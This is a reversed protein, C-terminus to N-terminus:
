SSGGDVIVAKAARRGSELAGQISTHDLHDGCVYLGKDTRTPRQLPELVGPSQDPLAYPISYTRLHRWHDVTPGFWTTLEKKVEPDLADLMIDDGLVTVSVLSRGPPACSPNVESLVVLNNILGHEQGNLVLIPKEVPPTPADYYLCHTTRWARDTLEPYLGSAHKLDAALVVARGKHVQGSSLTLENTGVKSVPTNLHLSEAPLRDALQIPLAGMGLRPVTVPGDAFMRFVFRFMRSSTNLERDLFVGGLFPRFFRDIITPSFGYRVLWECTPSDDGLMLREFATKKLEARLWGLKMKDMLTGVPSRLSALLDGPRRSPDGLLHLRNDCRIMAGPYFPQLQLQEYDFVRQAEPYATLLVQFGRDLRFGDVEDTRVRGGLGDSAEFLQFPLGHQHLEYACSLGALGGGVILIEKSVAM